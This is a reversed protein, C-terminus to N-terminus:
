ERRILAALTLTSFVNPINKMCPICAVLDLVTVLVSVVGVTLVAVLPVIIEMVGIIVLKGTTTRRSSVVILSPDLSERM